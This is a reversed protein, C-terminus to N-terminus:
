GYLKNKVGVYLELINGYEPFEDLTADLVSEYDTAITKWWSDNYVLQKAEKKNFMGPINKAINKTLKKQFQEVIKSNTNLRVLLNQNLQRSEKFSSVIGSLYKKIMLGWWLNKIKQSLHDDDFSKMYRKGVSSGYVNTFKYPNKKQELNDGYTIYYLLPNNLIMDNMFDLKNINNYLVKKQKDPMAQFLRIKDEVSIINFLKSQEEESINALLSIQKLDSMSQFTNLQEDKSLSHFSDDISTKSTKKDGGLWLTPTDEIGIEVNSLTSESVELTDITLM